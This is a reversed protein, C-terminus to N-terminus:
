VKDHREGEKAKEKNKKKKPKDVRRYRVMYVIFCIAVYIGIFAFTWYFAYQLLGWKMFNQLPFIFRTFWTDQMARLWTSVNM